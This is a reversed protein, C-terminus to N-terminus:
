YTMCAANLIGVSVSVGALMIGAAVEDNNIREVLKPMLLFRVIAFAIIQAILAVIGWIVFDVISVSNSAASGLALSFGILAGIFGIAAASSKKEKVLKLEDHPTVLLYIFKFVLLIVLSLAFYIAFSALGSLSHLISEM